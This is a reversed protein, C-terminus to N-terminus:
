NFASVGTGALAPLGGCRIDGAGASYNGGEEIEILLKSMAQQCDAQRRIHELIFWQAPVNENTRRYDQSGGAGQLISLGCIGAIDRHM